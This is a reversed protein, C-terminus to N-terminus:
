EQGEAGRGGDTKTRYKGRFQSAGFRSFKNRKPGSKSLPDDGRELTEFGFFSRLGFFSVIKDTLTSTHLAYPRGFPEGGGRMIFDRIRRDSDNRRRM